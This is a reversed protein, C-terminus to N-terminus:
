DTCYKNLISWVIKHYRIIKLIGISGNVGYVLCPIEQTDNHDQDIKLWDVEPLIKVMKESIENDEVFGKVLGQFVALVEERNLMKEHKEGNATWKLKIQKNITTM